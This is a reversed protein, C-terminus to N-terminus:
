ILKDIIIKKSIHGTSRTFYFVHQEMDANLDDLSLFKNIERLIVEEHQKYKQHMIVDMEIKDFERVYFFNPIEEGSVMFSWKEIADDRFSRKFSIHLKRSKKKLLETIELPSPEKEKKLQYIMKEAEEKTTASFEETYNLHNETYFGRYIVWEDDQHRAELRVSISKGKKEYCILDETNSIKSWTM